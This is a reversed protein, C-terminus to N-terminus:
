YDMWQRFHPAKERSIIVEQDPANKLKIKLKGNFYNAIEAVAEMNVIYQRNVRFFHRPDLQEELEDMSPPIIAMEGSFKVARVVRLEVIFYAIDAVMLTKYGDRFPLLFRKRHEKKAVYAMFDQIALMADPVNMKEAKTLATDFEDKDVPKLLYDVSNFKFARVAYEDYATTFIIPCTIECKELIEFSIGDSLRIDMLILDPSENRKLWNISESVTEIIQLVQVGPKLLNLLRVLRDANPKEDEIILINTIM